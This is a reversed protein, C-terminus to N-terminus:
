ADKLFERTIRKRQGSDFLVEVGGESSGVITGAGFKPHAVRVAPCAEDSRQHGGRRVRRRNRRACSSRV